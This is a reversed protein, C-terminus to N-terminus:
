LTSSSGQRLLLYAGTGILAFPWAWAVGGVILALLACAGALWFAWGRHTEVAPAMGYAAFTLALGAFLLGGGDLSTAIRLAGVAALTLLAGAPLVLGSRERLGKYDLLLLLGGLALGLPVLWASFGPHLSGALFLLGLVILVWGLIPHPKHALADAL